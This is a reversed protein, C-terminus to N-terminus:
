QEGPATLRKVNTYRKVGWSGKAQETNQSEQESATQRSTREEGLLTPPADNRTDHL